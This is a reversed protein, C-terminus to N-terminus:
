AGTRAALVRVWTAKASVIEVRTFGCEELRAKADDVSDAQRHVQRRVLTQLLQVFVFAAPSRAGDSAVFLDSLYLGRPFRRLESAIRCWLAGVRDRDFYGLLGETIVAAPRAPDFAALRGALSEEGADAFADISVVRHNERVLGARELRSRKAEAMYPLDAELYTLQPHAAAFRAGRGSLGGAIELVQAVEGRAIAEELLRDITRHRSLLSAELGAATGVANWARDLPWFLRYLRRGTPSILGPFSLGNRFWVYSTYHATPGIKEPESEV